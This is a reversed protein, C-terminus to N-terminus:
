WILHTEDVVSSQWSETWGVGVQNYRSKVVANVLAPDTWVDSDYIETLPKKDLFDECSSLFCVSLICLATYKIIKKM